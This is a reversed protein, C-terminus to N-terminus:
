RVLLMGATAGAAAGVAGGVYVSDASGCACDIGLGYATVAGVYFGVFGLAFAALVRQATRYGASHQTPHPSPLGPSRIQTSPRVTTSGNWQWDRIRSASELPISMANSTETARVAVSGIFASESDPSLSGNAGGPPMLTGSVCISAVVSTINQWM